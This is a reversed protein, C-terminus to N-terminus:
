VQMQCIMQRLGPRCGQVLLTTTKGEENQFSAAVKPWCRIFNECGDKGRTTRMGRGVGTLDAVEPKLATLKKNDNGLFLIHLFMLAALDLLGHVAAMRVQFSLLKGFIHMEKNESPPKLCKKRVNRTAKYKNRQVTCVRYTRRTVTVLLDGEM